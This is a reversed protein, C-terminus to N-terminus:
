SDKGRKIYNLFYDFHALEGDIYVVLDYTPNLDLKKWAKYIQPYYMKPTDKLESTKGEPYAFEKIFGTISSGTHTFRQIMQLSFVNVKVSVGLSDKIERALKEELEGTSEYDEPLEWIVEDTARLYLNFGGPLLPSVLEFIKWVLYREVKILRSPNTKGFIVQRIYKSDIISQTPNYHSLFEDYTEEGFVIEPDYWRLAQFNAKSLDISLFRKGLNAGSYVTHKIEGPTTRLLDDLDKDENFKKYGESDLIDSIIKDQIEYSYSLWKGPKGDFKDQIEKQLSLWTTESGLLPEYLELFYEFYPSELVQIPFNNDKVFKKRVDIDISMNQINTEYM